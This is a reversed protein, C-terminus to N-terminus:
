SMWHPFRDDSQCSICFVVASAVICTERDIRDRHTDIENAVRRLVTPKDLRSTTEANGRGGGSTTALTMWLHQVRKKRGGGAELV